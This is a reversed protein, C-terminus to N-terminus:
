LARWPFAIGNAVPIPFAAAAGRAGFLVRRSEYAIKEANGVAAEISGAIGTRSLM